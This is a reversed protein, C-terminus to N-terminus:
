GAALITILHAFSHGPRYTKRALAFNALLGTTEHPRAGAAIIAANCIGRQDPLSHPLPLVDHKIDFTHQCRSLLLGRVLGQNGKQSRPALLDQAALLARPGMRARLKTTIARHAEVTPPVETNALALGKVLSNAHGERGLGRKRANALLNGSAGLQPIPALNLHRVQAGPAPSDQVKLGHVPRAGHPDVTDLHPLVLASVQRKIKVDGVRQQHTAIARGLKAHAHDIGAIGARLQAALLARLGATNPVRRLRANPAINPHLDHRLHMQGRQADISAQVPVNLQM